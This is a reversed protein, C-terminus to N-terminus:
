QDLLLLSLRYFLRIDADNLDEELIHQIKDLRKLLSSRHIFLAQATYTISRENRLYIDLTKVYETGKKQDHEALKLISKAVLSHAAMELTSAHLIYELVQSQFYCLTQMSQEACHEVAYHAQLLFDHIRDIELFPNSLGAFYDMRDLLSGFAPLTKEDDTRLRILGVIEKHFMAVYINQPMLANLTGYMYDKPLYKQMRKERLKFFVWSEGPALSLIAREEPSIPETRLLKQLVAAGPSQIQNNDRLYKLFAKQFYRFFHDAIPFDRELFPRHFTTVSVCGVFYDMSYLNFCYSQYDPLDISSLFPVTLSRELGCVQKVREACDTPLTYSADNVHYHLNGAPDTSVQVFFLTQLTHEAVTISNELMEAGALLLKRIDFDAEKELENRLTEDWEDFYAYIRQIQNLVAAATVDTRIHLLQASHSLWQANLREGICVVGVGADASGHPLDRTYAIYLNGSHMEMGAEYLMPRPFVLKRTEVRYCKASFHEPLYSRIIELNLKM